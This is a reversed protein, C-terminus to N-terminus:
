ICCLINLMNAQLHLCCQGGFRQYGVMVGCPTVVWFAEIQFGTLINVYFYVWPFGLSYKHRTAMLISLITFYIINYFTTFYLYISCVVSWLLMSSSLIFVSSIKSSNLLSYRLKVDGIKSVGHHLINNSFSITVWSILFYVAKKHFGFTWWRTWVLGGSSGIKLWSFGTRRM